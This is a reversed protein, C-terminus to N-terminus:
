KRIPHHIGYVEYCQHLRMNFVEYFQL